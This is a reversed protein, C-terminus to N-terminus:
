TACSHSILIFYIFHILIPYRSVYFHIQIEASHLTDFEFQFTLNKNDNSYFCFNFRFLINNRNMSLLLRVYIKSEFTTLKCCFAGFMFIIRHLPLIKCLHFFFLSQPQLNSPHFSSSRVFIFCFQVIINITDANLMLKPQAALLWLCTCINQIKYDLIPRKRDIFRVKM